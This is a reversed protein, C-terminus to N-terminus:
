RFPRSALAWIHLRPHWPHARIKIRMAPRKNALDAGRDLAHTGKGDTAKHVARIPAELRDNEGKRGKEFAFQLPYVHQRSPAVAVAAGFTHGMALTKRSGDRGMGMGEMGKGGFPKGLDSLDVAITTEDTVRPANHKLLWEAAPTAFDDHELWQSVRECLGKPKTKANHGAFAALNSVLTSGGQILGNFLSNAATKCWAGAEPFVQALISKVQSELDSQLANPSM